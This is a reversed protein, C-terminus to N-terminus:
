NFASLISRSDDLFLLLTRGLSPHQIKFLSGFQCHIGCHLLGSHWSALLWHRIWQVNSPKGVQKRKWGRHFFLNFRHYSCSIIRIGDLGGADKHQLM